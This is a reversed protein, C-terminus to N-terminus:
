REIQFKGSEIIKGTQDKLQYIYIGRSYTSLDIRTKNAVDKLEIVKKGLFNYVQFSSNKQMAKQLEINIFTTAPNPYFKIYRTVSSSQATQVARDQSM